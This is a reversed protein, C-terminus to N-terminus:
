FKFDQKEFCFPGSTSGWLQLESEYSRGIDWSTYKSKSLTIRSDLYTKVGNRIIICKKGPKTIGYFIDENEKYYFISNCDDNFKILDDVKLNLLLSSDRSGFWFDEPSKLKFNEMEIFGDKEIIRVVVTKYPKDLMYDYASEVYFCNPGVNEEPITRFCVRIHSWLSPFKQNQDYNNWDGEIYSCFKEILSQNLNLYSKKKESNCKKTLVKKFYNSCNIFLYM